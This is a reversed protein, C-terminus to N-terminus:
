LKGFGFNEFVAQAQSDALFDIYTTAAEVSSSTTLVAIPYVIASHSGAPAIEVAKVSDSLKADTAYVLGADVNGSEVAALVSRVNNSFVFKPRLTDLLGLNRFAEEAYQGAPVSRFEGVAIKSVRDEQLKELRNLDLVSNSSAILVLRNAVLDQRTEPVILNKEALADMQKAAASFFVDAPAGQEIQRQLAGSSAFNYDVQITPHTQEFLPDIVALADQLSAAASVTLTITSSDTEGVSVQDLQSCGAAAWCAIVATILFTLLSSTKM